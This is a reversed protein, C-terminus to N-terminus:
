GKTRRGESLRLDMRESRTPGKLVSQGEEVVAEEGAGEGAMRRLSRSLVEEGEEAGEAM